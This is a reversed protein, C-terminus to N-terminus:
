EEAMFIMRPRMTPITTAPPTTIRSASAAMAGMRCRVRSVVTLAVRGGARPVAASRGGTGAVSGGIRSSRRGAVVAGAAVVLTSARTNATCIIASAVISEVVVVRTADVRTAGVVAISVVAAGTAIVVALGAGRVVTGRVLRGGRLVTGAPNTGSAGGFSAGVTNTGVDSTAPPGNSPPVTGGFAGGPHVAGGRAVAGCADATSGDTVNGPPLLTGGPHLGDPLVRTGTAAVGVSGRVVLAGAVVTGVVVTAGVVAGAGVVLAVREVVVEDVAGGCVVAVTVVSAGGEVAAVTRLPTSGVTRTFGAFGPTAKEILTDGFPGIVAGVVVSVGSSVVGAAGVGVGLVVFRREVGVVAGKTGSAGGLVTVGPWTTAPAIMRVGSGVAEVTAGMTAATAAGFVVSGGEVVSEAVGAVAVGAVAAGVVVVASLAVVGAVAVVVFAGTVYVKMSGNSAGGAGFGRAASTTARAM